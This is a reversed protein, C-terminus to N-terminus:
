MQGGALRMATFGPGAGRRMVNCCQQMAAHLVRRSCAMAAVGVCFHADRQEAADRRGFGQRRVAAAGVPAVEGRAPGAFLRKGVGTLAHCRIRIIM